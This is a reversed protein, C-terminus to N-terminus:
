TFAVPRRHNNEQRGLHKLPTALLVNHGQLMLRMSVYTMPIQVKMATCMSCIDSLKVDAAGGVLTDCDSALSLADFCQKETGPSTCDQAVMLFPNVGDTFNDLNNGTLHAGVIKKSLNPAIVPALDSDVFGAVVAHARTEITERWHKGNDAALEIWVDPLKHISAIDCLFLLKKTLHANFFESM